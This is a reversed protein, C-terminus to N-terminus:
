DAQPPRRQRLRRHCQAAKRPDNDLIRAAKAKMDPEGTHLQNAPQIYPQISYTPSYTTSQGTKTPQICYTCIKGEIPPYVCVYEFVGGILFICVVRKRKERRGREEKNKRYLIPFIGTHLRHCVGWVYARECRQHNPSLSWLEM